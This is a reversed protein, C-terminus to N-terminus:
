LQETDAPLQMRLPNLLERLLDLKATLYAEEQLFTTFQEPTVKLNIKAHAAEGLKNQLFMRQEPTWNLAARQEEPTQVFCRFDTELEHAM